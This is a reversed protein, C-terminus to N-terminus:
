DAILRAEAYGAEHVANLVRNAQPEAFPGLRVRYFARGNVTVETIAVPGLDTLAGRMREANDYQSFAGTQIFLGTDLVAADSHSVQRLVQGAPEEAPPDSPATLSIPKTLSVPGASASVSGDSNASVEVPVPELVEAEVKASPVPRIPPDRDAVRRELGRKMALSEDRLIEVRVRATGQTEFGLLQAGRRSMDIIRNHAFPGRDNVRVKLSRGNELNTVRVMSPMPLTRHAATLANMDYREGNATQKGHFGPGYWSAVGEEVYSFDEKPYYWVGNIRYPKGVKYNASAQPDTAPGNASKVAHAALNVEACGSLVAGALALGALINLHKFTAM